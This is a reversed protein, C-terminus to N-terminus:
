DGALQSIDGRCTDPKPHRQGVEGPSRSRRLALWPVPQGHSASCNGQIDALGGPRAPRPGLRPVPPFDRDEATTGVGAQSGLYTRVEAYRQLLGPEAAEGIVAQLHLELSVAPFPVDEQDLRKRRRDLLM